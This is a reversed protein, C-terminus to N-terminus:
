LIQRVSGNMGINLGQWKMRWLLSGIASKIGVVKRMSTLCSLSAKKAWSSPLISWVWMLREWLVAWCQNMQIQTQNIPELKLNFLESNVQGADLLSFYCFLKHGRTKLCNNGHHNNLWSTSSTPFYHVGGGMLGQYFWWPFMSNGYLHTLLPCPRPVFVCASHLVHFHLRQLASCSQVCNIILVFSMERWTLSGRSERNNTTICVHLVILQIGTM